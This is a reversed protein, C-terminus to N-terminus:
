WCPGAVGCERPSLPVSRAPSSLISVFTSSSIAHAISLIQSLSLLCHYHCHCHCTTLLLITLLIRIRIRLGHITHIDLCLVALLRTEYALYMYRTSDTWVLTLLCTLTANNPM